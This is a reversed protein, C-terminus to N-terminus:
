ENACERAPRVDPIRQFNEHIWLKLSLIEIRMKASQWAQFASFAIVMADVITHLDLPLTNM